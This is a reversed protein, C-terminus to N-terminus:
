AEDSEYGYQYLKNYLTRRSIGLAEAAATRNGAFRDLAELILRKEAEAITELGAPEVHFAEPEPEIHPPERELLMRRAKALAAEIEGLHCPKTLFEVVGHRIAQRAAELDGFGTLIVVRIRPWRRALIELFELGSMVPLNLDIMAIDVSESELLRVAEEGTRAGMAVYGMAPLQDLMLERLRPEDELVLVRRNRDAPHSM